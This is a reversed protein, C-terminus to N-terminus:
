PMTLDERFKAAVDSDSLVEVVFSVPTGTAPLLASRWYVTIQYSNRLNGSILQYIEGLKDSGPSYYYFGGTEDAIRILDSEGVSGKDLLGVTFVPIREAQALAIIDAKSVAGQTDEGDTFALVARNYSTRDILSTNVIGQYISGFLNTGGRHFSSATAASLLLSKDTTYPQVVDISNGFKIVEAADGSEYNQFFVAVANEMDGIRGAMSGSYDMVNSVAINQGSGSFTQLEPRGRLQKVAGGTIIDSQRKATGGTPTWELYARIKGESLDTIARGEQDSLFMTLTLLSEENNRSFEITDIVGNVRLDISPIVPDNVNECSQVGALLVAVAIVAVPIRFLKM